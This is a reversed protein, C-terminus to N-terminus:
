LGIAYGFSTIGLVINLNDYWKDVLSGYLISGADYKKITAKHLDCLPLLWVKDRQYVSSIPYIVDEIM